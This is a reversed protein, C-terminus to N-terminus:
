GGCDVGGGGVRACQRCVSGAGVVSDVCVGQVWWVM